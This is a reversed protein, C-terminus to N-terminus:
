PKVERRPILNAGPRKSLEIWEALNEINMGNSCVHCNGNTFEIRDGPRPDTVPDRKAEEYDQRLLASYEILATAPSLYGDLHLLEAMRAVQEATYKSM